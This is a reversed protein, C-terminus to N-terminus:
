NLKEQQDAWAEVGGLLRDASAENERGKESQTHVGKHDYRSQPTLRLKTAYSLVLRGAKEMQSLDERKQANDFAVCTACYQTLIEADSQIWHAKPWSAIM